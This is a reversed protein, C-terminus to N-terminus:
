ANVGEHGMAGGIIYPPNLEASLSLPEGPGDRLLHVYTDVTFSPSHHGLWTQVQKANKGGEFLM